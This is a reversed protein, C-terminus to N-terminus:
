WQDFNNGWIVLHKLFNLAEFIMKMFFIMKIQQVTAFSKSFLFNILKYIGPFVLLIKYDMKYSSCGATM